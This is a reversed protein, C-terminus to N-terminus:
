SSVMIEGALQKLRYVDEDVVIGLGPLSPAKVTGERLDEPEVRFVDCTSRDCETIGYNGLARALHLETIYGLQSAWNHTTFTAGVGACERSVAVNDIIGSTRIDYQVIDVVREPVLYPEITRADKMHEGFAIKCPDHAARLDGQFKAYLAPTEPFIEEIFLLKAPRIERMLALAAEYRNSYGYNPDAMLTVDSGIAERVALTVDIDRRDGSKQEMWKSGRGLKIKLGCYGSKVAESCEEVVAKIGRDKFWVDSMYITGDYVPIRQKGLDGILAWLPKSMIKGFIDFFAVDLYRHNALLTQYKPGRGSVKGGSMTYLDSLRAGIFPKLLAAHAATRLDTYSGVAIGEVGSDTEVRFMTTEYTYGKPVTDYANMAVFKQFRGQLTSIRIRKIRADFVDPQLAGAYPLAM